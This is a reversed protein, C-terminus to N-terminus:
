NRVGEIRREIGVGAGEEREREGERRGRTNEKEVRETEKERQRGVEKGKCEKEGLLRLDTKGESEIKTL